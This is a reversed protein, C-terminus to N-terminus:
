NLECKLLLEFFLLKFCYVMRYFKLLVKHLESTLPLALSKLIHGRASWRQTVADTFRLYISLLKSAQAICICVFHICKSYNTYFLIVTLKNMGHLM